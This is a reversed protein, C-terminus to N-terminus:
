TTKYGADVKEIKGLDMKIIHDAVDFYHDDHTIAIVIKGEAKMRMLLDRYFFKRFEPDQDAAVEDFLYIPSDELYCKLLALRKRQGGSLNVTSLANAGLNVKDRLNLIELYEEAQKMRSDLDINYLKQFLHHDSFVASFYEGIRGDSETAGVVKVEGREPQYLGTLLKAFTTKGSGNGGVIFTIEGKRATFDLPGVKFNEDKNQTKYEFEVGKAEIAEVAGPAKYPKMLVSPHLNVPIAKEFGKVRGWAVKLQMIAPISHLINNIPGILYLLIMIFSLLTLASIDPFVRPIGFGVAGLVVILMSEGILFANIFSILARSMKQRFEDCSKEVDDRYERKKNITLSLEKFGDLMGNLLGMYVNRTDRAEEFYRRTSRSVISYLTAIAIVVGLTLMTAWFAITALYIFAGAATVASTILRVVINASNGIQGTDDNLTAYVIGRPLKEFRQYSTLFVKHILKMRLDYVIDYTLAVLRTQLIKRGGIYVLFALGFYYLQLWLEMPSFLARTILFIVVANAGGALISLLVLMPMSRMYKNRMPFVLSLVFGILTMGIAIATLGVAAMFSIPSWVRAVEWTVGSMARPMVYIGALFPLIVVCVGLIKGIKKYTLGAFTRRKRLLDFGISLWFLVVILLYVALILSILSASKDLDNGTVDPLKVEGGRLRNLVYKGIAATASSNSNALIAVGVGHEPSFGMYSSYNPNMGDHDIVDSGNEYAYWGMAYGAFTRPNPSVKKNRSHTREMLPYLSTEVIGMQAQLFRAIDVGNGVIYGAADNGRFRPADFIRPEFFGIKYGRALKTRDMVNHLGMVTHAMGLPQLVTQRVYDELPMGSITEIVLGVVDYNITAYEFATGPKRALTIGSLNRITKQLSDDEDGAPILSVSKWPIGSTHHLFQRLTVDQAEGEFTAEFWPIYTSVPLDLDIKGEQALRLAALATFSKSCSALEFLTEATVKDGSERNAVGFGEILPENNGNLIVLTLGPIDGEEMMRRIDGKLSDLSDASLREQGWVLPSLGFTIVLIIFCIIKVGSKKMSCMEKKLIAGALGMAFCYGLRYLDALM